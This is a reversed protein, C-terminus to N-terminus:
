SGNRDGAFRRNLRALPKPRDHRLENPIIGPEVDPMCKSAKIVSRAAITEGRENKATVFLTYVSGPRMVGYLQVLQQKSSFTAVSKAPPKLQAVDGRLIWYQLGARGRANYHRHAADNIVATFGSTGRATKRMGRETNGILPRCDVAFNKTDINPEAAAAATFMCSLFIAGCFALRLLKGDPSSKFHLATSRGVTKEM